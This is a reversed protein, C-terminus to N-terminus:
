ITRNREKKRERENKSTRERSRKELGMAGYPSSSVVGRSLPGVGPSELGHQVAKAASGMEQRTGSSAWPRAVVFVM